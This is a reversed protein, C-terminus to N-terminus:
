SLWLCQPEVKIGVMAWSDRMFTGLVTQRYEYAWDHNKGLRKVWSAYQTAEPIRLTKNKEIWSWCNKSKYRSSSHHCLTSPYTSCEWPMKGLYKYRHSTRVVEVLNKSRYDALIVAEKKQHFNAPCPAKGWAKGLAIFMFCRLMNFTNPTSPFHFSNTLIELM